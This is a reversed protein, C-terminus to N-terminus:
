NVQITLALPHSIVSGRVEKETRGTGEHKMNRSCAGQAHRLTQIVAIIFVTELWFTMSSDSVNVEFQQVGLINDVVKRLTGSFDGKDLSVVVTASKLLMLLRVVLFLSPFRKM